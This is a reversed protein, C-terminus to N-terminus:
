RCMVSKDNNHRKIHTSYTDARSFHKNCLECFLATNDKDRPQRIAKRKTIAKSKRSASNSRPAVDIVAEEAGEVMQFEDQENLYVSETSENESVEKILDEDQALLVEETSPLADDVEGEPNGCAAQLIAESQESTKRLNYAIRLDFM